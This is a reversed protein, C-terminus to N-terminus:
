LLSSMIKSFYQEREANAKNQLTELQVFRQSIGEFEDFPHRSVRAPVIWRCGIQSEWSAAQTSKTEWAHWDRSSRCNAVSM